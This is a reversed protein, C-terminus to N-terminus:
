ENPQGVIDLRGGFRQIVVETTHREVGDRDTWKRTQVTGEVYLKTGKKVYKRVVAVLHPNFVTVRHWETKEVREGSRKDTWSDSTAISLNAIDDGSRSPRIDPDRGVNGMIIALNVTV